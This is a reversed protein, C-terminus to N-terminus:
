HFIGIVGAPISSAVKRNTACCRLWQAVATGAREPLLCLYRHLKSDDSVHHRTTPYIHLSAGRFCENKGVSSYPPVEWYFTRKLGKIGLSGYLPRVAVSVELLQM